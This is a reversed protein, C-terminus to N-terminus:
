PVLYTQYPHEVSVFLIVGWNIREKARFFFACLKGQANQAMRECCVGDAKNGVLLNGLYIPECSCLVGARRPWLGEYEESRM